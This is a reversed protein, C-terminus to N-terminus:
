TRHERKKELAKIRVSRRAPLRDLPCWSVRLIRLLFVVSKEM